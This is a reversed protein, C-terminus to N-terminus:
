CPVWGTGPSFRLRLRQAVLRDLLAEVRELMLREGFHAAVRERGAQGLRARMGADGLLMGMARALAAPDRPPVLLGTRGDLVLDPTGGVATAVVPLGSAMAELISNPMGEAVSAQVYLQMRRLFGAVDPQEGTFVVRAAIGLSSALGALRDREPGGGVLLLRPWAGSDALRAFAQLLTDHDNKPHLRATCGVVSERRGGEAVPTFHELDVGNPITVLRGPPIRFEQAARVAVHESVAVVCTALPVTARNLLRRLRGEFGTVRESSVRIPVRLVSGLLRGLLTPHFMFTVLIEIREGRLLRTLRGVVRVDAKGRMGLDHCTIGRCGGLADPLATSRGSLAAVRVGYKEPPLGAAWRGVIKEAGGREFTTVLFLLPVPGRGATQRARSAERTGPVV